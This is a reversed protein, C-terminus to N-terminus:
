TRSSTSRTRGSSRRSRRMMLDVYQFSVTAKPRYGTHFYVKIRPDTVVSDSLVRYPAVSMAILYTSTPFDHSWHWTHNAGSSDVSALLGNAVVTKDLPVTATLDVTAKDCPRDYCPFWTRGCSPPTTNVGVGMAFATPPFPAFWFGGFGGPGPEHWPVGSYAVDVAVTDGSDPPAPFSITLVEGVHSFPIPSGGLTVASVALPPRLDLAISPLADVRSLFTVVTHGVLTSTAIDVTSFSLSYHLVDFDHPCGDFAGRIANSGETDARFNALPDRPDVLAQGEILRCRPSDAPWSPGPAANASIVPCWSVLAFLALARGCGSPTRM